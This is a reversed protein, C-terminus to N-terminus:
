EDSDEGELNLVACSASGKYFRLNVNDGVKLQNSDTVINGNVSVASYGRSMVSIPNLTEMAVLLNKLRNEAILYSAEASTKFRSFLQSFSEYKNDVIERPNEFIRSSICRDYREYELNLRRYALERLRQKIYKLHEEVDRMDPVAIEAAASPTPARLDAVFDCLTFDTEHGVASIVPVPSEYIKRVLAEDNFCYLDEYSGGGRGIIILDIGETSYIKELMTIMSGPASEGQVVVPCLVIEVGKNRRSIVSIIDMVAAGTESTVVAVRRPNAPLPRKNEHAFLGEAELKRKLQEYALALAGIGTPQMDEVYLQYQGDRPYVSIKGCCIVRMSDEPRFKIRGAARNFMVCKVVSGEDKLSFYLHGSAYHNKFNSIEGEVFVNNLNMDGDIISKIYTNLQSVTIVQFNM